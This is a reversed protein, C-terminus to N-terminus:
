AAKRKRKRDTFLDPHAGDRSSLWRVIPEENCGKLWVFWSFAETNWGPQDEKPTDGAFFVIREIFQYEINFPRRSHIRRYREAGEKFKSRAFIALVDPDLSLAHEVFDDIIGFPPNTVIIPARLEKALMFNRGTEGYGRDTLTTSVVDCKFAKLVKSIAGEGCAPEWVKLQKFRRRVFTSKKLFSRAFPVTAEAPTNYHDDHPRWESARNTSGPTPTSM